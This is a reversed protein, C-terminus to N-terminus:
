AQSVPKYLKPVRGSVARLVGIFFGINALCFSYSLRALPMDIKKFGAFAMLYFFMQLLFIVTFIQNEFLLMLNLVFLAVM